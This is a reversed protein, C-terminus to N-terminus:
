ERIPQGSKILALRRQFVAQVGPPDGKLRSNALAGDAAVAAEAFRGNEALAAALTNLYSPSNPQAKICEQALELAEKGNRLSDDTSTSLVWALYCALDPAYKEALGTRYIRIALAPQKNNYFNSAYSVYLAPREEAAALSIGKLIAEAADTWNHRALLLEGKRLWPQYNQPAQKILGDFIREGDDIAGGAVQALAVHYLAEAMSQNFNVKFLMVSINLQKLDEPVSYPLMELWQPIHKDYLVQYGFCRKIEDATADPHLLQYYQVIFNEDSIMALHTVRYKRILGAAEAETRASFIEASHRLGADNEWYLTGLTKFRGYYGVSTSANPSSLMIIEGEPQSARLRAAIDRFLMNSADKPSVRRAKVDESIGVYRMVGSPIYLLGVMILAAAWRVLPRYAATWTALLVLALCVQVGSANLLWRSQWWAMANFLLTAIVAFWVVLPTERGKYTLTLIAAILPLNEVVLIQYIMKADFGQVTRWIPLFEQIYNRHLNALFPDLLLFVRVGGIAITAPAALIAVVPWIARPWNQWRNERPALWREGFQAVLESGGLWGIAYLPHNAELRMGLHTPFYEVLYFVFSAVAGVRGWTRWIEPAFMEGNQQARRGQILMALGGAAGVLVIPPLISAASVWMGFAGSLASFVAGNRAAEASVPLLTAQGPKAARWWGGGMVVAGLMMGLVAVTLLGHHDVYTPFFGEYIRDSCAMAVVIVVGAILGARRTAWASIIMILVLLAIPTLWVTVKEVANALPVGTFLHYVWGSGAICWAWASNWHVERGDPANDITTWRLQVQEGELLSLAHRVWTQADAAFAPYGQQLPTTAAPAGRLGLQGVITLYDRVRSAQLFLLTATLTWMIVLILWRTRYSESSLQM